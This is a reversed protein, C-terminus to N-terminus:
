RVCLRICGDLGLQQWRASAAAGTIAPINKKRCATPQKISDSLHRACPGRQGRGGTSLSPAGEGFPHAAALNACCLQHGRRSVHSMRSSLTQYDVWRLVLISVPAQRVSHCVSNYGRTLRGGSLVSASLVLCSLADCWVRPAEQGRALLAARFGRSGVRREVCVLGLLHRCHRGVLLIIDTPRLAWSVEQQLSPGKPRGRPECTARAPSATMSSASM